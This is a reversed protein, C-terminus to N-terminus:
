MLYLNLVMLSIMYPKKKIIIFFYETWHKDINYLLYFAESSVFQSHASVFFDKFNLVNNSAAHVVNPIVPRM